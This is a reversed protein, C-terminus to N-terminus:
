ICVAVAREDVYLIVNLHNIMMQMNPVGTLFEWDINPKKQTRRDKKENFNFASCIIIFDYRTLAILKPIASRLIIPPFFHGLSNVPNVTAFRM